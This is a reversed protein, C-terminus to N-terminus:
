FAKTFPKTSSATSPQVASPRTVEHTHTLGCSTGRRCCNEARVSGDTGRRSALEANPSLFTQLMSSGLRRCCNQGGGAAEPLHGQQLM